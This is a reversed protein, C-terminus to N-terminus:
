AVVTPVLTFVRDLGSLDLLRKLRANDGLSLRMTSGRKVAHRQLTILMRLGSSDIFGLKTLDCIIDRAGDDSEGLLVGLVDGANSIDIEGCLTLVVTGSRKSHGRVELLDLAVTRENLLLSMLPNM